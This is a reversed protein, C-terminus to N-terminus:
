PSDNSCPEVEPAVTIVIPEGGPAPGFARDLGDLADQAESAALKHLGCAVMASAAEVIKGQHILVIGEAYSAAAAEEERRLLMRGEARLAAVHAAVSAEWVARVEPTMPERPEPEREPGYARLLGPWLYRNGPTWNRLAEIDAREFGSWDEGDYSEPYLGVWGDADGEDPFLGSPPAVADVYDWDDCDNFMRVRWGNSLRWVVDGAFVDQFTPGDPEATARHADVDSLAALAAACLPESPPKNM